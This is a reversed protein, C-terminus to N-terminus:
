SHLRVEAWGGGCGKTHSNIASSILPAMAFSLTQPSTIGFQVSSHDVVAGATHTLAAWHRGTQLVEERGAWHACGQKHLCHPLLLSPVNQEGPATACAMNNGAAAPCPPCCSQLDWSSLPHGTSLSHDQLRQTLPSLSFYYWCRWFLRASHRGDWLYASACLLLFFPLLPVLFSFLFSGRWKEVCAAM